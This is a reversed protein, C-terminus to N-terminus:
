FIRGLAGSPAMSSTTSRNFRLTAPPYTHDPAQPHTCSFNLRACFHFMTQTTMPSNTNQRRKDFLASILGSQLSMKYTAERPLKLCSIHATPHRTTCSHATHAHFSQFPLVFPNQSACILASFTPRRCYVGLV